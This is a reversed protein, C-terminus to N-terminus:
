TLLTDDDDTSLDDGRVHAMLEAPAATAWRPKNWLVMVNYTGPGFRVKRTEGSFPPRSLVKSLQHMTLRMNTHKHLHDLVDATQMADREFPGSREEAWVELMELASGANAKVMESRAATIPARAAAKFGGLDVELFYHRLVAAARARDALFETYIWEQEFPEMQPARLEHIGWKRDDNSIMAADDANSSATVFFHNPMEYGPQGKPHMPVVDDAIWQEVKKSIADRENRSGARFESLNVHWANLLYDNFDSNLLGSNVERSYGGVLLAPIVRVLTTKGNGQTASWILPASKIKVGPRQVVHGYFQLLWERYPVDDIRDFLWEIKQLEVATPEAPEPLRNRYNNAYKEDGDKYITGEGPHFGLRDVITKTGSEKLMKIPSMFAGKKGKPMRHTFMHEIAMEKHYVRHRETDFYGESDAVFVLRKELWERAEAFKAKKAKRDQMETTEDDPEAAAVDEFEDKEAPRNRLAAEMDRAGDPTFSEWHTKCDQFDKYKPSDKSVRDFVILGEPRGKTQKHLRMGVDIWDDYDDTDLKKYKIFSRIAAEVSEIPTDLPERENVMETVPTTNILKRWVRLVNAPINPLKSWHGQDQGYKWVYPKKTVPHISPPLVDQVSLGQATACRLEFGTGKPKITRLTRAVAPSVKFLLKARNPRGSSVQVSGPEDLYADVDVGEEAWWKRSAELDDHDWACTGSLVHLLGCGAGLAEITEAPVPNVNWGKVVPGKGSEILCLSWGFLEYDSPLDTM